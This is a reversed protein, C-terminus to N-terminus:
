CGHSEYSRRKRILFIRWDKKISILRTNKLAESELICEMLLSQQTQTTSDEMLLKKM